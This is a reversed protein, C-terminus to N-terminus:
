VEGLRAIYGAHRDRHLFFFNTAVTSEDMRDFPHLSGRHVAYCCYGAEALLGIIENPHYGYKATWKRLMEVFLVPRTRRITESGGRLAFIEAGEVDCKILDIVPEAALVDDMRRVAARVELKEDEELLNRASTAGSVRPHFYFVLEKEEDSLGHEFIRVNGIGNLHLNKKLWSLTQPIPEFALVKGNPVARGFTICYWGTNAGIDLVVSAPTLFSLLLSTETKEYEGFNLIEVPTIRWDGPNCIMTVGEKTTVLVDDATITIREVNKGALFPRYAFLKEHYGYMQRIYDPKTIRGESYSQEIQQLPNLDTM